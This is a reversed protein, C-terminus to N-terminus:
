RPPCKSPDCTYEIRAAKVSIGASGSAYKTPPVITKGLIVADTLIWHQGDASGDITVLKLPQGSVIYPVFRHADSPHALGLYLITAKYPSMVNGGVALLQVTGIPAPFAAHALAVKASGTPEEVAGAPRVASPSCASFVSVGLFAWQLWGRLV